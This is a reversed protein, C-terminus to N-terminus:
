NGKKQTFQTHQTPTSIEIGFINVLIIKYSNFLHMSFIVDPIHSSPQVKLLGYVKGALRPFFSPFFVTM